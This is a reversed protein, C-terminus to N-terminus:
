ECRVCKGYDPNIEKGCGNCIVPATGVLSAPSNVPEEDPPECRPCYEHFDTDYSGHRDCRWISM